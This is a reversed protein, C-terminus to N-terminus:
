SPFHSRPQPRELSQKSHSNEKNQLHLLIELLFIGICYIFVHGVVGSPACQDSGVGIGSTFLGRGAPVTHADVMGKCAARLAAKVVQVSIAIM